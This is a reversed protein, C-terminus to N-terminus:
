GFLSLLKNVLVVTVGEDRVYNKPIEDHTRVYGTDAKTYTIVESEDPLTMGYVTVAERYIEDPNLASDIIQQLAENQIRLTEYESRKEEISRLSTSVQTDLKICQYCSFFIVLLSIALASYCIRDIIVAPICRLFPKLLSKDQTYEFKVQGNRTRYLRLQNRRGKQEIVVTSSATNMEDIDVTRVTNGHVVYQKM